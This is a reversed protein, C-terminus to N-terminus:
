QMEGGSGGVRKMREWAGGCIRDVEAQTMGDWVSQMARRLEGKTQVHMRGVRLKMVAWVTEIPNMDPSHPPWDCILAVNKRRLYATVDQRWHCRAGDQMFVRRGAVLAPVVPQLCHRKYLDGNMRVDVVGRRSDDDEGVPRKEPLFVLQSKFGIGIAGWVHLRAVNWTQTRLRRLPMTGRRVFQRRDSHDNANGMHEDSFVIKKFGAWGAKVTKKAFVARRRLVAPDRTTVRRRVRSVFGMAHLDRWVTAPHVAVGGRTALERAISPASPFRPHKVGKVVRVQTVLERVAKRRLQVRMLPTRVYRRRQAAAGSFLLARKITIRSRKFIRALKRVSSPSNRNCEKIQAIEVATLHKYVM